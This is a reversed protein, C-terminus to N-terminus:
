FGGQLDATGHTLDLRGGAVLAAVQRGIEATRAEIAEVREADTQHLSLAVVGRIHKCTQGTEDKRRYIADACTCTAPRDTHFSVDYSDGSFGNDGFLRVIRKCTLNGPYARYGYGKSGILVHGVDEFTERTILAPTESKPAAVQKFARATTAVSCM